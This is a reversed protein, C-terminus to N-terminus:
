EEGEDGGCMSQLQTLRRKAEMRGNAHSVLQAFEEKSSTEVATAVHAEWAEDQDSMGELMMELGAALDERKVEGREYAASLAVRVDEGQVVPDMTMLEDILRVTPTARLQQMTQTLLAIINELTKLVAPDEGSGKCSDYVTYAAGLVGPTLKGEVAAARVQRQVVEWDGGSVIGNFTTM